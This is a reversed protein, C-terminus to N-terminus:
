ITYEQMMTTSAKKKVQQKPITPQQTINVYPNFHHIFLCAAALNGCRLHNHSTLFISVTYQEIM